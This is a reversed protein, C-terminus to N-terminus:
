KAQMGAITQKLAWLQAAYASHDDYRKGPKTKGCDSAVCPKTKGCGSPAVCGPPPKTDGCKSPAICTDGGAMLHLEPNEASHISVMLDTIKFNKM